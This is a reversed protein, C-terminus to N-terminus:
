SRRESREEEQVTYIAEPVAELRSRPIPEGSADSLGYTGEEIKKLARDIRELRGVERLSLNGELELLALRQADDEYEESERGAQKVGEGEAVNSREASKLAARTALLRRRQAEIFGSDLKEHKSMPIAGSLNTSPIGTPSGIIRVAARLRM